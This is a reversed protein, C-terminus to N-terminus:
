TSLEHYRRGMLRGKGSFLNDSVESFDTDM